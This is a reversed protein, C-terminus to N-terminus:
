QDRRNCRAQGPSAAPTTVDAVDACGGDKFRGRTRGDEFPARM